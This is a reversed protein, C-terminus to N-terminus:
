EEVEKNWYSIRCLTCDNIDESQFNCKGYFRNVLLPCIDVFTGGIVTNVIANPYMELFKDMRTIKPPHENSWKEVIAIAEEPYTTEFVHCGLQETNNYYDLPCEDRCKINCDKTMRKKEKFYKIADM